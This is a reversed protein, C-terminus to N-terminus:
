ELLAMPYPRIEELQCHNLAEMVMMKDARGVWVITMSVDIEIPDPLVQLQSELTVKIQFSRLVLCGDVARHQGGVVLSNSSDLRGVQSDIIEFFSLWSLV